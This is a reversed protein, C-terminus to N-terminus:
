KIFGASPQHFRARPIPKDVNIPGIGATSDDVDLILPGVINILHQRTPPGHPETRETFIAVLL